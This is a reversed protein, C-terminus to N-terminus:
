GARGTLAWGLILLGVVVRYIVFIYLTRTKLYALLFKICVYGSIGACLTGVLLTFAGQDWATQLLSGMQFVLAGLIAPISLLFAFRAAEDRKFNMALGATITIGSRSVGPMLSLAQACGILLADALRMEGIDRRKRTWREAVALLLGFGVLCGGVWVPSRFLTEIQERFLLAFLVAPLTALIIQWALKAEPEHLSRPRILSRGFARALKLVDQRFYALVALLTGAHLAVDFVLSNLLRANWGLLPPLLTLHASSSIPLFETIGQVIGLIAAEALFM